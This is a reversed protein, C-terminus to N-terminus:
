AHRKRQALRRFLATNPMLGTSTRKETNAHARWKDVDPRAAHWDRPFPNKRRDIARCFYIFAAALDFHGMSQAGERKDREFDNGHKNWIANRLQRRLNVCREHVRVRGGSILLNAYNNAGQVFSVRSEITSKDPAEFALHHERRIDELVFPAADMVRTIRSKPLDPWLEGEKGNVEDAIDRSSPKVLLSEDEILILDHEYDHLGYLFATRDIFGLDGVTYAFFHLPRELEAIKV